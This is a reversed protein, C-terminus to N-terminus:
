VFGKKGQSPLLLGIEGQYNLGIVKSLVFFHRNTHHNLFCGPIEASLKDSSHKFM